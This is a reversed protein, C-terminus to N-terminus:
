MSVRCRQPLVKRKPKTKKTTDSHPAALLKKDQKDLVLEVENFVEDADPM